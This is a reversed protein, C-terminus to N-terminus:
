IYRMGRILNRRRLYPICRRLIPAAARLLSGTTSLLPRWGISHFRLPYGLSKLDRYLCAEIAFCELSSLRRRWVATNDSSVPQGLKGHIHREREPVMATLRQWELMAPEFQEGLFECIQRVIREPHCVLDEYRVELIQRAYPSKLYEQRAAMASTWEFRDREYYRVWDVDICSIAVDRGDRILHVFKAGPYLTALQPVIEFYIPTKDGFRSKGTRALHCHYVLNVIDVLCPARLDLARRRLDEAAIEMDPWRYDQTMLTVARSVQAPTLEGSLPLERVLCRLFWTEPPIHLRSHGALILRLLTTGSRGAGIIFFPTNDLM